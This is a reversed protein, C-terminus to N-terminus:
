ASSRTEEGSAIQQQLARVQTRAMEVNVTLEKVRDTLDINGRELESNRRALKGAFERESNLTSQILKTQDALSSATGQEVDLKSQADAASHQAEALKAEKGNLQTQLENMKALDRQHQDIMRQKDIIAAGMAAREKGQAALATQQWQQCSEKWNEQ